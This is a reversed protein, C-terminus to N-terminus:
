KIGRKELDDIRDHFDQMINRYDMAHTLLDNEIEKTESDMKNLIDSINSIILKREIRDLAIKHSERPGRFRTNQKTYISAHKKM